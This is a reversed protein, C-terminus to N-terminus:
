DNDIEIIGIKKFLLEKNKYIGLGVSVLQIYCNANKPNEFLNTIGFTKKLYTEIEKTTM